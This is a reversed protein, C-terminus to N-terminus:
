ILVGSRQLVATNARRQATAALWALPVGTGVICALSDGQAVSEHLLPPRSPCRADSRPEPGSPCCATHCGHVVCKHTSM